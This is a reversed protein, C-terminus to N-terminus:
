RGLHTFGAWATPRALADSGCHAALEAPMGPPPQRQPDLMWRQALHLADSPICGDVNLYHHVMYMFLSTEEDRVPWLTGFVTHAGAALFATALSFAEDHHVGVVNTACAALFVRDIPLAAVRCAEILDRAALAARDALVLHADAPFRPDTTAHCALHLLSPGTANALWELVRTPTASRELYTGDPYFTKHVAAAEVGAFPLDGEPNGIVIASEVPRIPHRASTCLVRASITYSFAIDEVAYRRHGDGGTTFAAHWPVLGLAGMPILVMRAPRDSRRARAREVLRGVCANWAWACIDDLASRGGQASLPQLDRLRSSAAAWRHVVVETGVAEPPVALDPLAIAELDGHAPIIVADGSPMLYVLADAELTDLARQVESVSVTDPGSAYLARIVLTRLDDSVGSEGTVRMPAATFLDRGYGSTRRWEDALSARGIDDLRRAVERSTTAAALVLGRSADLVSLLEEYAGDALCWGAVRAALDSGRRAAQMAYDTGAQLFVNLALAHLGSRGLERARAHHAPSVLRLSEGLGIALGAWHPNRPGGAIALAQEFYTSATRAATPDARDITALVLWVNGAQELAAFREADASTSRVLHALFQGYARLEAPDPHILYRGYRKQAAVLARQAEWPTLSDPLDGPTERGAEENDPGGLIASVARLSDVLPALRMRTMDPLAAFDQEAKRALERFRDLDGLEAHYTANHVTGFLAMAPDTSGVDRLMERARQRGHLDGRRTAQTHLLQALIGELTGREWNSLDDEDLFQVLQAALADGYASVGATDRMYGMMLAVMNWVTPRIHWKTLPIIHEVDLLIILAALHGALRTRLASSAADSGEGAAGAAILIEDAEELVRVRSGPLTVVADNLLLVRDLHLNLRCDGDPVGFRLARDFCDLAADLRDPLKLLGAQRQHARGLAHWALGLDPHGEFRGDLVRELLVVAEDLVRPDGPLLESREHVLDCHCAAAYPSPARDLVFRWCRIANDLDTPKGDRRWRLEYALALESHVLPERHDAAMANGM